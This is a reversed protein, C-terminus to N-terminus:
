SHELHKQVRFNLLDHGRISIMQEQVVDFGKAIFFPKATASVNSYLRTLSGNLAEEHIKEMLLSGVGQRQRAHPLVLPRNIKYIPTASSKVTEKQL